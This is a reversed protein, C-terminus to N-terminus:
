RTSAPWDRHQRDYQRMEDRLSLIRQRGLANQEEDLLQADLLEAMRQAAPLMSDLADLAAMPGPLTMFFCLGPTELREMASLEFHGPENLNAVSFLPSAEPRGDILRHYICRDGFVLGAKEAAVVLEPGRIKEGERAVLYLTLIRDYDQQVREGPQPERPAPEIAELDVEVMGSEDGILAEEEGEEGLWPERRRSGDGGQRQPRGFYYIALLVFAGVILLLIRLENASM